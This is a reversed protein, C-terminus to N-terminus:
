TKPDGGGHTGALSGFDGEGTATFRLSRVEVGAGIEARLRDLLEDQLLDLQEAWTASCCAITVRGDRESVPTAQEAVAPGAARQWAAQVAALPTQPASTELVGELAASLQRPAARGM